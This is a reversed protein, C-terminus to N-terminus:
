TFSVLLSLECLNIAKDIVVDKRFVVHLNIFTNICILTLDRSQFPQEKM